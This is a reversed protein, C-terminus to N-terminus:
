LASLVRRADGRGRRRKAATDLVPHDGKAQREPRGPSRISCAMSSSRASGTPSSTRMRSAWTRATRTAWTHSFTTAWRRVCCTWIARSTLPRCTISSARRANTARPSWTSTRRRGRAEEAPQRPILVPYVSRGMTQRQWLMAGRHKARHRAPRLRRSRVTGAAAASHVARHRARFRCWLRRTRGSQLLAIRNARGSGHRRASGTRDLDRRRGAWRSRAPGTGNWVRVSPRSRSLLPELYGQPISPAAQVSSVPSFSWIGVIAATGALAIHVPLSRRRM